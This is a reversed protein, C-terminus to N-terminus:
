GLQGILITYGDLDQVRLEGEPMYFPYCISYVANREPMHGEEGSKRLGPPVGGDELGQALLHERLGKVDPSYMYFLVAQQSPIISGSAVTLFLKARGTVMGAFNTIGDDRQYWSECEFGLLAYFQAAADVDEVHAMAVCNDVRLQLPCDSNPLPKNIMAQIPESTVRKQSPLIAQAIATRETLALYAVIDIATCGRSASTLNCMGSGGPMEALVERRELNV